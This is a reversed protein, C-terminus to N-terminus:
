SFLPSTASQEWNTGDNSLAYNVSGGSTYWMQYFPHGLVETVHFGISEVSAGGSEPFVPNCDYESIKTGSVPTFACETVDGPNVDVDGYLDYDSRCGLMVASAIVLSLTFRM